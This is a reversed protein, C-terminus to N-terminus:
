IHLNKALEKWLLNRKIVQLLLFWGVAVSMFVLSPWIVLESFAFLVVLFYIISYLMLAGVSKLMDIESRRSALCISASAIVIVSLLFPVTYEMAWGFKTGLTYYDYADIFILFLSIIIASRTILKTYSVKKSFPSIFVTMIVFLGMIVYPFYFPTTKWIINILTTIIGALWFIVRIINVWKTRYIDHMSYIPFSYKNVEPKEQKKDSLVYKGCLPCHALDSSVDVNCNTCKRYEAM